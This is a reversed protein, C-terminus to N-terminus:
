PNVPALHNKMKNKYDLILESSNMDRNKGWMMFICCARTHLYAVCKQIYIRSDPNLIIPDHNVLRDAFPPGCLFSFLTLLIFFSYAVIFLNDFIFPPIITFLCFSSDSLNSVHLQYLSYFIYKIIVFVNSLSIILDSNKLPAPYSQQTSSTTFLFCFISFFFM